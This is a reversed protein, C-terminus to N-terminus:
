GTEVGIPVSITIPEVPMHDGFAAFGGSQVAALAAQDIARNGSSRAIRALLVRGDPAISAEIVATGSVSLRQVDHNNLMNRKIQRHLAARYPDLRSTTDVPAPPPAAPRAASEAM